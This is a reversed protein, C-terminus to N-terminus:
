PAKNYHQKIREVLRDASGESLEGIVFFTLCVAFITNLAPIFTLLLFGQFDDGAWRRIARPNKLLYFHAAMAIIVISLIYLILFNM